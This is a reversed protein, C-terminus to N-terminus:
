AEPAELVLSAAQGNADLSNVLVRRVKKYLPQRVINLVPLKPDPTNFGHTPPIMQQSICFIAAAVQLGGSAGICEGVVGKIAHVPICNGFVGALANAEAADGIPDGNASAIIVDIEDPELSASRLAESIARRSASEMRAKSPVPEFADATGSIEALIQAGRLRAREDEELVLVVGAEAFVPGKREMDFPKPPAPEPHLGGSSAIAYATFFSLTEIGGTLIIAARKGHIYEVSQAIANLGSTSGTTLTINPGEAGVHIALQSAPANFGTQPGQAPNIRDVGYIFADTFMQAYDNMGASSTAAIVGVSQRDWLQMNLGADQCAMIAASMFIQSERNLARVGKRGLFSSASFEEVMGVYFKPLTPFREPDDFARYSFADRGHTLSDFLVDKGIGPSSMVGMGTIVARNTV